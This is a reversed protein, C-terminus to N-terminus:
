PGLGILSLDLVVDTCGDLTSLRHHTITKMSSSIPICMDQNKLKKASATLTDSKLSAALSPLASGLYYVLRGIIDRVLM